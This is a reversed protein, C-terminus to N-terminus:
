AARGASARAIAGRRLRVLRAVTAPLVRALVEAIRRPDCVRAPPVHLFIAPAVKRDLSRYLLANCVYAGADRSTAAPVNERRLRIALTHAGWGSEIAHHPTKGSLLSAPARGGADPHRPSRRHHARTEIAVQRRRGAVGIHVIVDPTPAPAFAAVHAYTVPLVQTTLSIHSRLFRARHRALAIVVTASPNRPQGPFRGFGTVLLRVPSAGVAGPMAM